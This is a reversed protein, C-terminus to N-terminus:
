YYIFSKNAEREKLTSDNLDPEDNQTGASPGINKNLLTPTLENSGELVCSIERLKAEKIAWFFGQEEAKAANGLKPLVENWMAFAEKYEPDNMALYVQVYQMGVSHQDIENNLYMQYVKENYRELIESEMFLAQTYGFKSVNLQSWQIAKEQISLPKGVKATINFMHDHLHWATKESISKAFIGDLHVDDHSDMWDYTNAIITRKITGTTPDDVYSTTLAKLTTAELNSSVVIDCQKIASKKLEIIERKNAHLYKFLEKKDAFASTDIRM